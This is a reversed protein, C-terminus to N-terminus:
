PTVLSFSLPGSHTCPSINTHLLLWISLHLSPLIFLHFLTLSDLSCVSTLSLHTHTLITGEVHGDNAVEQMIWMTDGQAALNADLRIQNAEEAAQAAVACYAVLAKGDITLIMEDSARTV